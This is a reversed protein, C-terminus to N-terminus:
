PAPQQFQTCAYLSFRRSGASLTSLAPVPLPSSFVLFDPREAQRCLREVLALPPTACANLAERQGGLAAGTECQERADDIAQYAARRPAFTLATDRGFLSGASQLRSYHSARGLLQWVAGVNDHWYVTATAPIFRALPPQPPESEVLRAFADRRDWSLLAGALALGALGAALGAAGARPSRTLRWLLGAFAAAVLPEAMVRAVRAPEGAQPQLWSLRELQLALHTGSYVLLGLACLALLLRLVAQSVTVGRWALAASLLAGLLLPGGYGPSAQADLLLLAVFGATLRWLGGRQWLQWLVFPALATALLHTLWLVRWPQIQTILVSHLLVTGVASVALLLGTAGLTATLLPRARHGTGFCAWAAGLLGADTLVSRWDRLEWNTVIVHRSITSVIAWWTEDFARLLRDLPSVGLAGLAVAAPLAALAWLWRRDQSVAMLWAIVLAPLAMLPHLALSLLLLACAGLLRGHACAALGLLALPEALTRATLYPETYGFIRLGGYMPSLAAVALLGWAAADGALRCARLLAVIAGASAALGLLLLVLHTANVGLAQYLPAVLWSYLSFADQSGSSFFPDARLAPVGARLLTQGNYLIGDHQLGEYGRAFLYTAAAALGIVLPPRPLRHM